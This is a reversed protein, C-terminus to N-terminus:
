SSLALVPGLDDRTLRIWPGAADIVVGAIGPDNRLTQALQEPTLSAPRDGRGLAIAEFPHSFLQLLRGGDTTRAEAVGPRGDPTTGIGIWLKTRTLADAIRAATESTRATSLLTKIELNPDADAVLRELLERSLVARAAGSAPDLVIGAYPGALAHRIVAMAPQGLASTAADGDAAVSARIAEGGSYALVYQKDAITAFALPLQKGEALLARADGKARLFLHGQLVARAVAALQANDPKESLEALAARLLANDRLGPITETAPPPLEPGPRWAPATTEAPPSSSAATGSQAGFGDFSSMSIGVSATPPEVPGSDPDAAIDAADTGERDPEPEPKRTFIAM